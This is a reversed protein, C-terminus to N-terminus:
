LRVPEPRIESICSIYYEANDINFFATGAAGERVWGRFFVREKM